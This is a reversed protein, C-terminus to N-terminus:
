SSGVRRLEGICWNRWSIAAPNLLRSSRSTAISAAPAARPASRARDAAFPASKSSRRASISPSIARPAPSLFSAAVEPRSIKAIVRNPVSLRGQADTALGTLRFQVLAPSVQMFASAELNRVGHRLLLDVLAREEEPRSPDALLNVGYPAGGPLAQQIQLIAAEIEALRLGGSGFFSLFGARAMRIVLATSAIGKVMAGAVYAARLGYDERFRESGLREPTIM